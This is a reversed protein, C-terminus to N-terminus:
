HPRLPWRFPLVGERSSDRQASSEVLPPFFVATDSGLLSLAGPFPPPSTSTSVLASLPPIFAVHVFGRQWVGSFLFFAGLLLSFLVSALRIPRSSVGICPAGLRSKQVTLVGIFVGRSHRLWLPRDLLPIPSLFSDGRVPFM